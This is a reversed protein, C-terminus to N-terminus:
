TGIDFFENIASFLDNVTSRNATQGAFLRGGVAVSNAAALLQAISYNTNNTLGLLTGAPGVNWQQTGLGNPIVLFGYKSAAALGAASTNQFSDTVYAAMAVAMVQAEVKANDKLTFLTNFYDEVGQPTKTALTGTVGLGATGYLSSFNTALWIGLLSYGQANTGMAEIVAHGNKNNWFGITATTLTPAVSFPEFDSHFVNPPIPAPNSFPPPPYNTDGSYTAFFYYSGTALPGFNASTNSTTGNV